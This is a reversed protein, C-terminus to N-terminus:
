LLIIIIIIKIIIYLLFHVYIKLMFNRFFIKHFLRKFTFVLKQLENTFTARIKDDVTSFIKDNM